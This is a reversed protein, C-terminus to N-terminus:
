RDSRAFNEGLPLRVRFTAGEGPASEVEITGGHAGVLERVIWLGLGMGGYSRASVARGFREFIKEQDAPAIGIGRDTVTLEATGNRPTVSVAIPKGTGFKVANTLLNTVIQDVRSPDWIGVVPSLEAVITTGQDGATGEVREIAERAVAALDMPERELMLRGSEIRGVDVLDDTLRTLRDVLRHATQLRRLTSEDNDATARRRWTELTLALAALPTRLEHGAASLFADRTQIAEQTERYLREREEEARRRDTIDRAIKAAGVIRGSADKVPSVSLSVPIKRGDKAVRVTEFHEVREGRAIRSLIQQMDDKHEPPMLESIPHGVIEEAKYGFLREASANWATIIGQLNKSIIADEASALIAGFRRLEDGQRSRVTVDRLVLSIAEGTDRAFIEFRRDGKLSSVERLQPRGTEVARRITELDDAALPYVSALDRGVLEKRSGGFFDAAAQNVFLLRSQRDLLCVADSISDLLESLQEVSAEAPFEPHM